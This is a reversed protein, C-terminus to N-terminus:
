VVRSPRANGPSARRSKRCLGYFRLRNGVALPASNLMQVSSDVYVVVTNPTRASFSARSLRRSRHFAPLPALTVTYCAFGGDNSVTTVTGDLTQPLLTVTAAPIYTPGGPFGTAHTSLLIDQGPVINV